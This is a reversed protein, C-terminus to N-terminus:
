KKVLVRTGLNVHNSVEIADDHMMNVCGHSGNTLYTQGGFEEESRWGHHKIAKGNQDYDTHYQADHLGQGNHFKMMVDVVSRYGPGILVTNYRIQFINFDGVSTPTSPKGTVVPATLIVENDEYLKLEQNSIDVVVYTGSLEETDKINIYGINDDTQILYTDDNSEIVEGVEFKAVDIEEGNYNMKTDKTVKVVKKDPLKSSVYRLKFYESKVYGIYNNYEIEYWGNNLDTYLTLLEGTSVLGLKEANEDPLCRVNVNDMACVFLSVDENEVVKDYDTAYSVDNNNFTLVSALSLAILKKSINKM